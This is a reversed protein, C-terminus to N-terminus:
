ELDHLHAVGVLGLDEHYCLSDGEIGRQQKSYKGVFRQAQDLFKEYCIANLLFKPNQFLLPRNLLLISM